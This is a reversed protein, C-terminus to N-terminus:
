LNQLLNPLDRLLTTAPNGSTVTSKLGKAFEPHDKCELALRSLDSQSCNAAESGLTSCKGVTVGKEYCNLNQGATTANVAQTPSLTKPLHARVTKFRRATDKYHPAYDLIHQYAEKAQVYRGLGQENLGVKYLAELWEKKQELDRSQDRVTLYQTVTYLRAKADKYHPQMDLVRQYNFKAQAFQKNMQQDYAQLYTKKLNEALHNQQYQDYAKKAAPYQKPLDKFQPNAKEVQALAFYARPYDKEQLAKVGIEYLARIDANAKAQMLTDITQDYEQAKKEKLGNLEEQLSAQNKSLNEERWGLKKVKAQLHAKETNLAKITLYGITGVAGGTVLSGATFAILIPKLM